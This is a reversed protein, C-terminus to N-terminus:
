GVWRFFGNDDAIKELVDKAVRLTLAYPHSGTIRRSNEDYQRRVENVISLVEERELPVGERFQRLLWAARLLAVGRDGLIRRGASHNWDREYGLLRDDSQSLHYPHEPLDVRGPLQDPDSPDVTEATELSEAVLDLAASPTTGASRIEYYTNRLAAARISDTELGLEKIRADLAPLETKVMQDERKLLLLEDDSAARLQDVVEKPLDIVRRFLIGDGGTRQALLECRLHPLVRRGGAYHHILMPCLFHVAHPDLIELVLPELRRNLRAAASAAM